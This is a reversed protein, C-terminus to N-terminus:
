CPRPGVIAPQTDTWRWHNTDKDEALRRVKHAFARLFRTDKASLKKGTRCDRGPVNVYELDIVVLGRCPTGGIAIAVHSAAEYAGPLATVTLRRFPQFREDSRGHERDYSRGVIDRVADLESASNLAM